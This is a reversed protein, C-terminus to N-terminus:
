ILAIRVEAATRVNQRFLAQLSAPWSATDQAALAELDAAFAKADASRQRREDALEEAHFGASISSVRIDSTHM